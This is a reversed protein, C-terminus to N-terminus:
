QEADTIICKIVQNAVPTFIVLGRKRQVIHNSDTYIFDLTYQLPKVFNSDISNRLTDEKFSIIDFNSVRGIKERIENKATIQRKDSDFRQLECGSSALLLILTINLSIIYLFKVKYGQKNIFEQVYL